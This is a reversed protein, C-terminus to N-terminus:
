KNSNNFIVLSIFYYKVFTIIKLFNLLITGYELKATEVVTRHGEMGQVSLSPPCLVFAEARGDRQYISLCFLALLILASLRIYIYPISGGMNFQLDIM